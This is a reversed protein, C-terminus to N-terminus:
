STSRTATTAVWPARSARQNAEILDTIHGGEIVRVREHGAPDSFCVAGLVSLEGSSEGVPVVPAATDRDRRPTVWM